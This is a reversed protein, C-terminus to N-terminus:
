CSFGKELIHAFYSTSVYRPVTDLDLVREFIVSIKIVADNFDSCSDMIYHINEYDDYKMKWYRAGSNPLYKDNLHKIYAYVFLDNAAKRSDRTRNSFIDILEDRDILRFDTKRM